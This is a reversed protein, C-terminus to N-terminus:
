RLKYKILSMFDAKNADRILNLCPEFGLESPDKDKFELLYVNIGNNMFSEMMKLSDSLADRDLAIYIDSVKSEYIKKNLKPLITKGFLPIANRKIAIADFAGECLIIPEEWNVFLEFGIIDKSIPPNRYKFKSKYVDRAIFYNLVGEVDYSPIIVRNNYLGEDCFGISYKIIDDKTIGRNYLYVLAHKRQISYGDEWLPKYQKPLEVKEEKKSIDSPYKYSTEGVINRLETFQKNTANVKKFLQFLNHGGQNSVWCHWKQTKINIQLKPKHHSIFPSWYMYENLKRLKRGSNGIVRNLLNILKNHSM